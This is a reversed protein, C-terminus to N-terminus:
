QAEFTFQPIDIHEMRFYKSCGTLYHMYADYREEGVLQIARDKNAQLNDSWQDLTKIYHSRLSIRHLTKFGAQEAHRIVQKPMPLMAHPFIEKRIFKAFQVSDPTPSLGKEDFEDLDTWSNVQILARGGTPLIQHCRDFFPQYREHRFHEMVEFSVLTDIPESFEEWGQMRLEVKGDSVPREILDQQVYDYQAQSLTLGIAHCGYKEALHRVCMGWGFGVDVVRQGRQINAREFAQDLKRIQAQQLTDDESEYVASSYSMTPDLFLKYFDNSLDYHARVEETFLRLKQSM